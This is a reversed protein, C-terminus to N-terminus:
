YNNSYLTTVTKRVREANRANGRTNVCAALQDIYSSFNSKSTADPNENELKTMISNYAGPVHAAANEEFFALVDRDFLLADCMTTALSKTDATSLSKRECILQGRDTASCWSLLKAGADGSVRSTAFSKPDYWRDGRFLFTGTLPLNNPLAPRSKELQAVIEAIPLDDPFAFTNQADTSAFNLHADGIKLTPKVLDAAVSALRFDVNKFSMTDAIIKFDSFRLDTLQSDPNDGTSFFLNNVHGFVSTGTLKARIDLAKGKLSLTSFSFNGRLENPQQNRCASCQTPVYNSGFYVYSFPATVEVTSRANVQSRFLM